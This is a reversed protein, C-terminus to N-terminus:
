YIWAFHHNSCGRFHLIQERIGGGPSRPFLLLSGLVFGKPTKKSKGLEEDWKICKPVTMGVVEDEETGKSPIGRFPKQKPDSDSDWLARTSGAQASCRSRPTEQTPWIGSISFEWIGFPFPPNFSSPVVEIRLGAPTQHLLLETQPSKPFSLLFRTRPERTRELHQEWGLSM